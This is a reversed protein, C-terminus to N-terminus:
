PTLPWGPTMQPWLPWFTMKVLFTVEALLYWAVTDLDTELDLEDKKKECDAEEEVHKIPNKGFKTLLM